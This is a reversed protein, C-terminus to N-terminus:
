NEFGEFTSAWTQGDEIDQATQKGFVNCKQAATQSFQHCCRYLLMVKPPVHHRKKGALQQVVYRASRQNRQAMANVMRKPSDAM